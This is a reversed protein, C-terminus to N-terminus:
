RRILLQLDQLRRRPVPPLVSKNDADLFGTGKLDLAGLQELEPLRKPCAVETARVWRAPLRVSGVLLPKGEGWSPDWTLRIPQGAQGSDDAELQGCYAVGGKFVYTISGFAEAGNGRADRDWPHHKWPTKTIQESRHKKSKM